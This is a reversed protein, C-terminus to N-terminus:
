KILFPEFQNPVSEELAQQTFGYRERLSTIYQNLEQDIKEHVLTEKLKEEVDEFKIEGGPIYEALYFLRYLSKKDARSIEEVPSSLQNPELSLLIDKHTESVETDNLAFEESISIQKTEFSDIQDKLILSLTSFDQSKKNKLDELISKVMQANEFANPGRFSLIHYRWSDPNRNHQIYDQYANVLDEPATDFAGRLRLVHGMMRNVYMEKETMDWAEDFTLGIKDLNTIIQPGYLRDMQQRIDGQTVEVKRSKADEYVLENSVMDNFVYNWQGKYFQYRAIESDVLHPYDRFFRTDLKKMVDMVSIPHNNVNALVRNDVVIRSPREGQKPQMLATPNWNAQAALTSLALSSLLLLKMLDKSKKTPSRLLAITKKLVEFPMM